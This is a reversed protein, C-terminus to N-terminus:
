QQWLFVQVECLNFGKVTLSNIYIYIYRGFLPVGCTVNFTEGPTPPGVYTACPQYEPANLPYADVVTPYSINSVLIELDQVRDDTHSMFIVDDFRDM